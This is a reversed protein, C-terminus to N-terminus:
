SASLKGFNRQTIMDYISYTHGRHPTIYTREARRLEKDFAKRKNHFETRLRNRESNDGRHKMYLREADRANIWLQRLAPSWYPKHRRRRSKTGPTFDTYDLCTDMETHVTDIFRNYITDFDDQHQIGTQLDTIISTLCRRSRENQFMNDPLVNTRYRRHVQQANGKQSWAEIVAYSESHLSFLDSAILAPSGTVLGVCRSFWSAAQRSYRAVLCLFCRLKM